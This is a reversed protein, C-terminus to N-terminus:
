PSWNAPLKAYTADYWASRGSTKLLEAYEDKNKKAWRQESEPAEVFGVRRQYDLPTVETAVRAALLGSADLRKRSERALFLEDDDTTWVAARFAAGADGFQGDEPARTPDIARWFAGLLREYSVATPDYDVRVAKTGDGLAGTTAIFVGKVNDFAKALLRADGGSFYAAAVDGVEDGDLGANLAARAERPLVVAGIAAAAASGFARRDFKVGTSARSVSLAAVSGCLLSVLLARMTRLQCLNSM